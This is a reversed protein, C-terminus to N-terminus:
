DPFEGSVYYWTENEKTFTSIEHHVELQSLQNLYYAKFEVTIEKSLIIELKMWKNSAAWEAIDKKHQSKKSKHHFTDYIFDVLQMTFATYRARMLLEASSAQSHDQHILKCCNEYTQKLGCPCLKM